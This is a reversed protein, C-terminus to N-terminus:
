LSQVGGKGSPGMSISCIDVDIFTGHGEIFVGDSKTIDVRKKYSISLSM